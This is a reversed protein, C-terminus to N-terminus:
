FLGETPEENLCPAVKPRKPVQKNSVVTDGFM